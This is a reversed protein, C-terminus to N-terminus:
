GPQMAYILGLVILLAAMVLRFLGPNHARGLKAGFYNSIFYGFFGVVAMPWFVDGMSSYKIVAGLSVPPLLIALSLTRADDKHMRFLWTLLPVMLVGAGIGFLGGIIGITAGLLSMTWDNLPVHLGAGYSAWRSQNRRLGESAVSQIGLIVLVGAFLLRLDSSSFQYALLAGLYSFGAYASFGIAVYRLLLRLRDRMVWLAPLTMPGLMIALVTGQAPHQPYRLFTGLLFILIPAGGIGAYGGVFGVLLGFLVNLLYEETM